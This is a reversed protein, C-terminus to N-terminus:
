RFTLKAIRNRGGAYAISDNLFRFSLFAEKSLETWHAGGDKSYSIGTFGVAVIENGGRNPVYQVCSKYGDNAGSGIPNWTKGGDSTIAINNTNEGPKLYDGGYIIGQNQDYFDMTYAGQTPEGQTVPTTIVEWNIGKNPSHFVRSQKGGSVIWTEDGIIKINTDSAAFAAEGETVKPMVDCSIKQWTSGGDRTVIVSLCNNIPDGMAIGENENWFEMSDYFAKPDTDTFVIEKAGSVKNIRFLQAPSGISLIFYFNKTSAVSRFAMPMSVMKEAGELSDKVMRDFSQSDRKWLQTELSMSGYNGKDGAFLLADKTVEIARVSISDKLLIELEVQTFNRAVVDAQSKQVKETANNQCGICIFVLILLSIKMMLNENFIVSDGM